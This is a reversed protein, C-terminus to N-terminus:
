ENMRQQFGIIDNVESIGADHLSMLIEARLTCYMADNKKAYNQRIQQLLMKYLSVSKGIM